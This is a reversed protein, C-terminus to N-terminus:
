TFRAIATKVLSALKIVNNKIEVHTDSLQKGADPHGIENRLYTYITEKIHPKRKDRSTKEIVGKENDRIFNDAQAQTGGTLQLLIGYLNLFRSIPDTLQLSFRYLSCYLKKESSSHQIEKELIKINSPSPTITLAGTLTCKMVLPMPMVTCSKRGDEYLVEKSIPAGEFSTPSVVTDFCYAILNFINDAMHKTLEYAQDPSEIGDLFFKLTFKYIGVLKKHKESSIVIKELAPNEIGFDKPIREIEEQLHLGDIESSYVAVGKHATIPM